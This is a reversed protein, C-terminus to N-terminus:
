HLDIACTVAITPSKTGEVQVPELPAIPALASCKDSRPMSHRATIQLLFEQEGGVQRTGRFVTCAFLLIFCTSHLSHSPVQIRQPTQGAINTKRHKCPPCQHNAHNEPDSPNAFSFGMHFHSQTKGAQLRAGKNCTKNRTVSCSPVESVHSSEGGQCVQM